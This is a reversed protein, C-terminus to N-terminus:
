KLDLGERLNEPLIDKLVGANSLSARDGKRLRAVHQKYVAAAKQMNQSLLDDGKLEATTLTLKDDFLKEPYELSEEVKSRYFGLAATLSQRMGAANTKLDAITKDVIKLAEPGMKEASPREKEANAILNIFGKHRVAYNRVTEVMFLSSRVLNEAAQAQRRELAINNDKILGRLLELNARETPGAKASLRDIEELPNKTQDLLLGAGQGVSKWEKELDAPRNGGPTNIGSLVLRFGLDKATLAGQDNFFAVEERRGPLIESAGSLYSGGKRVFGGVSGHLRGGLSFHFTDLMMEAVNGGTDHLGLPNPLRSGVPLPNEQVRSEERYVAYSAPTEGEALPFSDNERLSAKPVAHGGRAAYEWEAESPLRLFGVNKGDGAFHPLSDPANKLLWETYKQSFALADYWSLGAKPLADDAALPTTESPCFGEMVAKWQFNTVEYKGMLYFYYNGTPAKPLNKRMAQPLDAPSFPGSVSTAWRREYYDAGKRDCDDCGFLTQMDWLFGEAQVGVARFAMNGGCPMPLLLDDTLPKPNTAEELSVAGGKTKLAAEAAGCGLGLMLLVLLLVLSHRRRCPASGRSGAPPFSKGRVGETHALERLRSSAWLRPHLPMMGRGPAPCRGAQRLCEQANTNNSM